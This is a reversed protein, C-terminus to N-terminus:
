NEQQIISFKRHNISKKGNVVLGRNDGVYLSSLATNRRLGLRNLYFEENLSPKHLLFDYDKKNKLFREMINVASNQDRKMPNEFFFKKKWFEKENRM